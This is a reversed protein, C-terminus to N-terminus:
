VLAAHRQAPQGRRSAASEVPAAPSNTKKRSPKAAPEVPSAAAPTAKGSKQSFLGAEFQRSAILQAKAQLWYDLDRGNTRGEAEWLYYAYTAIEAETPETYSTANQKSM